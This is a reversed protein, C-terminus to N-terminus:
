HLQSLKTSVRDSEFREGEIVDSVPFLCFSFLHGEKRDVM